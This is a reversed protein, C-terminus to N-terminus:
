NVHENLEEPTGFIHHKSALFTKMAGGNKVINDLIGSLYVEGNENRSYELYASKFIDLNKFYYVGAVADHSIVKKEVVGNIKNNEYSIYSFHKKDSKFTLCSIDIDDDKNQLWQSFEASQFEHDCDSIIIPLNNNIQKLALYASEAPGRTVEEIQIIEIHKFDINSAILYEKHEKLIVLKVQNNFTLKTLSNLARVFMKLGNVELFPKPVSYGKDKFRKGRGAM